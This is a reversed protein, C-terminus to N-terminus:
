FLILIFAVQVVLASLPLPPSCATAGAAFAQALKEFEGTVLVEDFGGTSVQMM